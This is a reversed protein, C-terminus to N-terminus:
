LVCEMAFFTNMSTEGDFVGPLTGQYAREIVVVITKV